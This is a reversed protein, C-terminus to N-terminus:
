ITLLYSGVMTSQKEFDPAFNCYFISMHLSKDGTQYDPDGFGVVFIRHLNPTKCIRKCFFHTKRGKPCINTSKKLVKAKSCFLVQRFFPM